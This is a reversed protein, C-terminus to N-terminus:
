DDCSKMKMAFDHSNAVTAKSDRDEVGAGVSATVFPKRCSVAVSDTEQVRFAVWRAASTVVSLLSHTAKPTVAEPAIFFERKAM